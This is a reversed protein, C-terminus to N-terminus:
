SILFDYAVISLPMFYFPPHCWSFPDQHRLIIFLFMFTNKAITIAIDIITIAPDFSIIKSLIVSRKLWSMVLAVIFVTWIYYSMFLICLLYAPDYFGSPLYKAVFGWHGFYLFELVTFSAYIATLPCGSVSFREDDIYHLICIFLHITNQFIFDSMYFWSSSSNCTSNFM